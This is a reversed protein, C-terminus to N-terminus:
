RPVQSVNGQGGWADNQHIKSANGKAVEFEGGMGDGGVNAHMKTFIKDIAADVPL